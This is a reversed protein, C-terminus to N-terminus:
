DHTLLVARPAPDRGADELAAVLAAQLATDLANAAKPRDLTLRLVGGDLMKRHLSM